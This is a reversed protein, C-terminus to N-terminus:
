GISYDGQSKDAPSKLHWVVDTGGKTVGVQQGLANYVLVITAGNDVTVLRGEGDWQYSHTGDATLNGAADYGFGSTSIRNTSTDFTWNPGPGNTQGNTVCSMNGYRDYSYDLNYTHNGTAQACALRNMTDYVYFASHSFTSNLSDTYTYGIVDGNNGSTGSPNLPCGPPQTGGPLSYNYTLGYNASPNASTGLQIGTVQLRNNYTYTELINTCGGVVDGQFAVTAKWVSAASLFAKRPSAACQPCEPARGL